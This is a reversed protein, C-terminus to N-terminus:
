EVTVNLTKRVGNAAFVYIKCSGTAKATIIGSSDVTAINKDSSLYRLKPAHTGTILRKSKKMKKVSAKIKYTKDQSLKVSTKDVKVSKPNTFRKTGGSTYAHVVPSTSIYKKEGDSLTYAKVYAKYSSRKKLGSKTWKLTGADKVSKALKYSSSKGNRKCRAFFIDYGDAGDVKTWSINMKKAGKSTMKALLPEAPSLKPVSKKEVHLGSPKCTRQMEGDQTATPEKTIEWPEWTHTPEIYKFLEYEGPWYPSRRSEKEAPEGNVNVKCNSAFYYGWDAYIYAAAIYKKGGELVGEYPDKIQGYGISFSNAWYSHPLNNYYRGLMTHEDCTVIPQNNPIDREWDGQKEMAVEEGCEPIEIHVDMSDLPRDWLLFLEQGDQLPKDRSEGILLNISNYHESSDVFDQKPKTGIVSQRQYIIIDYGESIYIREGSDFFNENYLNGENSYKGLATHLSDYLWRIISEFYYHNGPLTFILTSGDIDIEPKNQEDSFWSNLALWEEPSEAMAEALAQHKEGLELTFTVGDKAYVDESAATFFMGFIVFLIAIPILLPGLLRNKKM